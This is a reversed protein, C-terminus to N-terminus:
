ECEEVVTAPFVIAHVGAVPLASGYEGLRKAARQEV